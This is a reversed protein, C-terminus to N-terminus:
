TIPTPAQKCAIRVESDRAVESRCNAYIHNLREIADTSAPCFVPVLEALTVRMKGSLNSAGASRSVGPKRCPRRATMSPPAAQIRNEM